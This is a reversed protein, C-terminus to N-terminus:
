PRDGVVRRGRTQSFRRMVGSEATERRPDPDAARAEAVFDTDITGPAVANVRIGREAQEIALQRTLQVLGGKTMAYAVQNPMGILGSISAVNVIAVRRKEGM